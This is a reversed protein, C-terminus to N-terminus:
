NLYTLLGGGGSGRLKLHEGRFTLSTPGLMKFNLIDLVHYQGINIKGSFQFGNKKGAGM